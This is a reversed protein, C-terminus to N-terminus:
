LKLRILRKAAMLLVIGALGFASILGVKRALGHSDAGARTDEERVRVSDVRWVTDRRAKYVTDVTVRDRYRWKTTTVWVTDGRDRVYVAVSDVVKISDRHWLRVTDRQIVTSTHNVAESIERTRCGTLVGIAIAVLAVNLWWPWWVKWAEYM